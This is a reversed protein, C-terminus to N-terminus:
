GDAGVSPSKQMTGLRERLSDRQSTVRELEEALASAAETAGVLVADRVASPVRPDIAASGGGGDRWKEVVRRRNRPFVVRALSRPTSASRRHTAHAHTVIAFSLGAAAIARCFDVDVAGVPYFRADVGGVADWTATALMMGRSPIYDSDPISLLDALAMDDPPFRDVIIPEDDPHAHGPGFVAENMLGGLSHRAVIGATIVGRDDRAPDDVIVPAVLAPGGPRGLAAALASLCSPDPEMDDQVLWLMDATTVARGVQLGGAWGLNAGTVIVRVAPGLVVGAAAFPDAIGNVIVVVEVSLTTQSGLVADIARRVMPLDGGLTPILAAIDTM